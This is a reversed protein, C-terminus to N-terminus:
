PRDTRKWELVYKKVTSEPISLRKSVIHYLNEQTTHPSKKAEGQYTRIVLPKKDSKSSGIYEVFGERMKKMIRLHTGANALLDDSENGCPYNVLCTLACIASMADDVSTILPRDLLDRTVLLLLTHHVKWTEMDKIDDPDIQEIKHHHRWLTTVAISFSEKYLESCSSKQVESLAIRCRKWMRRMDPSCPISQGGIRVKCTSRPSQRSWENM